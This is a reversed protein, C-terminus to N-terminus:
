ADALLYNMMHPVYDAKGLPVGQNRLIAYATILHFYFQPLAWDRVYQRGTLQFVLGNSLRMQLVGDAGRDLATGDAEWLASLALDIAERAEDPTRTNSLTPLSSGTLRAVCEQAQLCVFGIQASLPHMDPALRAELLDQLRAGKEEAHVAAKALQGSLNALGQSLAPTVLEHLPLFGAGSAASPATPSELLDTDSSPASM